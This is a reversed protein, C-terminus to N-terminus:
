NNEKNLVLVGYDLGTQGLVRVKGDIKQSESLSTLRRQAEITYIVTDSSDEITLRISSRAAYFPVTCNVTPNPKLCLSSVPIVELGAVSYKNLGTQVTGSLSLSFSENAFEQTKLVLSIPINGESREIQGIWKGEVVEGTVVVPTSNVCGFLLICLVFVGILRM